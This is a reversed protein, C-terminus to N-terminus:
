LNQEGQWQIPYASNEVKKLNIRDGYGMYAFQKVSQKILDKDVIENERDKYIEKLISDRLTFEYIKFINERYLDLAKETLSM